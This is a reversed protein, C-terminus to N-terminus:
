KWDLLGRNDLWPLLENMAQVYKHNKYMLERMKTEDNLCNSYHKNDTKDLMIIPLVKSVVMYAALGHKLLTNHLSRLKPLPRHYELLKLNEILKDYYFRVFFDFETYKISLDASSLILYYLDNAPSGYKGVQFDLFVTDEIKSRDISISIADALIPFYDVM